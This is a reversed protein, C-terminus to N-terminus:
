EDAYLPDLEGILERVRAARGRTEDPLWSADAYFRIEERLMMMQSWLPATAERGRGRQLQSRLRAAMDAFERVGVVAAHHRREQVSGPQRSELGPDALLTQVAADLQGALAAVREQDWPEAGADGPLLLVGVLLVQSFGRM